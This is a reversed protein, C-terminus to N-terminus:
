EDNFLTDDTFSVGKKKEDESMKDTVKGASEKM